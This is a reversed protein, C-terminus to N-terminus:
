SEKAEPESSTKGWGGCNVQQSSSACDISWLPPLFLRSDKGQRRDELPRDRSRLITIGCGEEQWMLHWGPRPSRFRIVRSTRRRKISLGGWTKHHSQQSQPEEDRPSPFVVVPRTNPNHTHVFDGGWSSSSSTFPSASLFCLACTTFLHRYSCGGPALRM